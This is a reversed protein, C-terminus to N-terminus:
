LRPLGNIGRSPYKRFNVPNRQDMNSDRQPDRMAEQYNNSRPDSFYSNSPSEAPCMVCTMAKSKDGHIKSCRHLDLYPTSATESGGTVKKKKLAEVQKKARKFNESIIRETKSKSTSTVFTELKQLINEHNPDNIQIFASSTRTELKKSYDLMPYHSSDCIQCCPVPEDKSSTWGVKPDPDMFNENDQMTASDPAPLFDAACISCCPTPVVTNTSQPISPSKKTKGSKGAKGSKEDSGMKNLESQIGDNSAKAEKKSAKKAAKSKAASAKKASKSKAKSAKEASKSKAKSAKKESDSAKKASKSKGKSAKKESDSAKKTSKSKGKPAKKM